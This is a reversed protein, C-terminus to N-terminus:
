LSSGKFTRAAHLMYVTGSQVTSVLMAWVLVTGSWWLWPPIADGPAVLAIVLILTLVAACQIGMKIKGSWRAAFSIGRSEMFGRISSVFFERSVVVVVMWGPLLEKAPIVDLILIFTGCIVVKDVFPDMIRGFVTVEGRKRALYGDLWDTAASATFVVISLWGLLARLSGRTSPIVALLVFLAISGGLRALTIRNPLNFRPV